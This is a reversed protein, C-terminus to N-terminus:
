GEWYGFGVALGTGAPSRYCPVYDILTMPTPAMAGAVAIWNIIEATGPARNLRDVPLARLADSDGTCLAQVVQHDLAEDIIQHSLGGSAVLVVRADAPWASVARRIAQGLAFCRAPTGQSPLYRSLLIPVVPLNREPWFSDYINAFEHGDVGAGSSSQYACALDFGEAILSTMLHDALEPSTPFRDADSAAGDSAEDLSSARGRYKGEHGTRPIGSASDSLYIGFTPYMQNLPPVGHPNSLVVFVDPKSDAILRRSRAIGRQVADHREQKKEPTIERDIDAPAQALLDAYTFRQDRRDQGAYRDWEALPVTMMGGHSSAFGLVIDAM